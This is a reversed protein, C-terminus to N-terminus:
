SSTIPAIRIRSSALHYLAYTALSILLGKLLDTALISSLTLAWFGTDVPNKRADKIVAALNLLKWGTLILVTALVTLPIANVIGPLALAFLGIWVGHMITSWRTKAGSEVNAASRVIVGTIPLAGLVGCLLNGTGQALLERDLQTKFRFGKKEAMGEIARATLLSEASAVLGMGIGAGILAMSLTGLSFDSWLSLQGRIASGISELEVRPISHFGLALLTVIIVAPLAGPIWRFKGSYKTWLIQITFGLSGLVLVPAEVNKFSTPLTTFSLIASTPVKAGLWVHLQGLLIILGIAALMGDLISKPVYTFISGLRFGGMLIQVLGAIATAIALGMLGHDQIIMFVLATLGAAPGSVVLPAGSLLGVFIGGVLASIIGASATAGSALSIGLTLPLSVVFVVLGSVWDVRSPLSLRNM